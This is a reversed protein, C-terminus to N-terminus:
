SRRVILRGIGWAIVDVILSSFRSVIAATVAPAAGLTPALGVAVIAERVGIGAPTVLALFGAVPGIVYMGASGFAAEPSAGVALSTLFGHLAWTLWYGVHAFPVRAPILPREDGEVKLLRLVFRPYYRRGVTILGVTM